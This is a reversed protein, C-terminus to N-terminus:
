MVKKILKSDLYNLARHTLSIAEELSAANDIEEKKIGIDYHKTLYYLKIVAKRFSYDKPLNNNTIIQSEAIYSYPEIDKSKKIPIEFLSDISGYFPVIDKKIKDSFNNCTVSIINKKDFFILSHVPIQKEYGNNAMAAIEYVDEQFTFKSTIALYHGDQKLSRDIETYFKSVEILFKGIPIDKNPVFVNDIDYVTKQNNNTSGIRGILSFKELDIRKLAKKSAKEFLLAEEKTILHINAYQNSFYHNSNKFEIM